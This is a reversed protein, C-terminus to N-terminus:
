FNKTDNNLYQSFVHPNFFTISICTETNLCSYWIDGKIMEHKKKKKEKM